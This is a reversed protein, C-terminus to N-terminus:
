CIAFYYYYIGSANLQVTANTTSYWSLSKESQSVSVSGSSSGLFDRVDVQTIGQAWVFGDQWSGNNAAFKANRYVLVMKPSGINFTLINKHGSGNTGTGTYSGTEIRAGVFNGNDDEFSSLLKNLVEFRENFAARNVLAEPDLFRLDDM